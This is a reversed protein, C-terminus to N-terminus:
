IQKLKNYFLMDSKGMKELFLHHPFTSTKFKWSDAFSKRLVKRFRDVNMTKSFFKAHCLLSVSSVFSISLIVRPDLVEPLIQGLVSRKSAAKKRMITYFSNTFESYIWALLTCYTVYGFCTWSLTLWSLLAEVNSFSLSHSKRAGLFDPQFLIQNPHLSWCHSSYVLICVLIYGVHLSVYSHFMTLVVSSILSLSFLVGTFTM